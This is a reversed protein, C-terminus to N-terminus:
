EDPSVSKNDQEYSTCSSEARVVNTRLDVVSLGVGASIDLAPFTFVVEKNPEALMGAQLTSVISVEFLWDATSPSALLAVRVYDPADIRPPKLETVSGSYTVRIAAKQLAPPGGIVLSVFNPAFRIPITKEILVPIVITPKDTDSTFITITKQAEATYADEGKITVSLEWKSRKDDTMGLHAFGTDIRTDNSQVRTIQFTPSATPGLISLKRTQARMNTLNRVVLRDPQVITRKVVFRNITVVQIPNRDDNSIVRIVDTTPGGEVAPMVNLRLQAVEGPSLLSKTVGVNQCNCSSVLEFIHLDRNGMNRFTFAVLPSTGEKVEGLNQSYEDFSLRAHGRVGLMLKLAVLFACVGMIFLAFYVGKARTYLSMKGEKQILLIEVDADWIRRM